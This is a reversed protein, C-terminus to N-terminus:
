AHLVVTLGIFALAVGVVVPFAAKDSLIERGLITTPKINLGNPGGTVSTWNLFVWQMAEGFAFTSLALYIDRMRIALAGLAYGIVATVVGAAVVSIVFNLHWTNNLIGAVYIGIGYFAAHSLAFQGTEGIVLHLGLALVIYIMLLNVIYLVYGSTAFPLIMLVAAALVLAWKDFDPKM